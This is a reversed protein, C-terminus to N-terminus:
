KEVTLASPKFAPDLTIEGPPPTATSMYKLYDFSGSNDAFRQIFQVIEGYDSIYYEQYTDLLRREEKYNKGNSRKKDGKLFIPDGNDDVKIVMSYTQKPQKSIVALTKSEPDYICEQYPCDNDLHIM